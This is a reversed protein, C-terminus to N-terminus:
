GARRAGSARRPIVAVYKRLTMAPDAHGLWSAVQRVSMGAGGDPKPRFLLSACTRLFVHYGTAWELGTAECAPVLIRRRYNSAHLPGGTRSAFVFDADRNWKSGKRHAWLEQALGPALPVSRREATKPEDLTGRYWHRRVLIASATVDRWQLACAEAIRLGTM